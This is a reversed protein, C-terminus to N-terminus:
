YFCLGIYNDADVTSLGFTVNVKQLETDVEINDIQVNYGGIIDSLEEEIIKKIDEKNLKQEM